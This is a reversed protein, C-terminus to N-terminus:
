IRPEHTHWNLLGTVLQAKCQGPCLFSTSSQEALDASKFVLRNEEIYKMPLDSRGARREGEM